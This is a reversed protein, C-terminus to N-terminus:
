RKEKPRDLARGTPDNVTRCHPCRWWTCHKSPCHPDHKPLPRPRACNACPKAPRPVPPPAPKPPITTM